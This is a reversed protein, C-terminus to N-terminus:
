RTVQTQALAFAGRLRLDRSSAGVLVDYTGAEAVWGHADPSYFAFARQGLPISVRRTEGPKLAIKAFGKLEQEPRDVSPHTAHVYVQVVEAGARRGTNTVDCEVTASAGAGPTVRLASFSFTTYSLGFGFPFLPEIKKADFWRYGVLLGEDYHEVGQEGPFQRALGAAHAPSDALKKPFTCPLRGSPNVDGFLVGALATGAESGGYWAELVAPVQALWPMQVPSGSILVVVTRPNAAVIRAILEDQHAPLALDRRDTGEDDAYAQHSLGGIFIVADAAKAARLAREELERAEAPSAATLESTSVGAADRRRGHMRLPQRYGQSFTVNAQAGARAVIGAFATIERFAKVGASNGGAAFTRVANEGIVAITRTKAPDLPLLGDDNKLLVMGEEAVRRAGALHEPTNIAGPRRGDVAGTFFLLRLNRRVKDDLSAVPYRGQELGHLFPQALYYDQYAGRTGMELDLGNFVAQDTDHTGSWDSIVSGKFGWEKKLIENILYANHGCYEGRFKNYAGMIALAGGERVGAEFAPLYIERLTREDMEVDITSRDTEQNNAVFHKICAVVQEAQM